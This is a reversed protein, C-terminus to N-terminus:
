RAGMGVRGLRYSMVDGPVGFFTALAVVSRTDLVERLAVRPMLLEEAFKLSYAQDDDLGGRSLFDRGEVFDWPGDLGLEVSRSYHGLALACPFRRRDLGDIPNLLIRPPGSGPAKRLVSSVEPALEDDWLVEIELDEGIAVPDVPLTITTPRKLWVQKLLEWADRGPEM